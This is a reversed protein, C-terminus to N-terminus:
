AVSGKKLKAKIFQIDGGIKLDEMGIFIDEDGITPHELTENVPFAPSGDRTCKLYYIKEKNPQDYVFLNNHWAEQYRRGCVHCVFEM